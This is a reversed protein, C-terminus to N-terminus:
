GPPTSGPSKFTITREIDFTTRHRVATRTAAIISARASSTISHSTAIEDRQEAAPSDSGMLVLM